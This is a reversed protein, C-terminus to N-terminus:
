ALLELFRAKLVLGLSVGIHDLPGVFFITFGVVNSNWVAINFATALKPVCAPVVGKIFNVPPVTRLFTM